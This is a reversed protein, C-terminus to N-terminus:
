RIIHCFSPSTVPQSIKALLVLSPYACGGKIKNIGSNMAGEVKLIRYTRRVTLSGIQIDGKRRFPMKELWGGLVPPLKWRADLRKRSPEEGDEPRVKHHGWSRNRRVCNTNGDMLVNLCPYATM